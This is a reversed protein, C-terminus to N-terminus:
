TCGHHPTAAAPGPHDTATNSDCKSSPPTAAPPGPDERSDSTRPRSSPSRSRTSFLSRGPSLAPFGREGSAAHALHKRCHRAKEGHLFLKDRALQSRHSTLYSCSHLANAVVLSGGEVEATPRCGYGGYQKLQRQGLERLM